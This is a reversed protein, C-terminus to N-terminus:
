EEGLVPLIEEHEPLLEEPPTFLDPELKMSTNLEPNEEEPEPYMEKLDHAWTSDPYESYLMQATRDSSILDEAKRYALAAEYLGRSVWGREEPYRYRIRLFADAANKWFNENKQLLALHFLSEAGIASEECEGLTRFIEEATVSDGMAQSYLARCLDIMLRDKERLTEYGALKDLKTSVTGEGPKRYCYALEIVAAPANAMVPLTLIYAILSEQKETLENVRLTGAIRDALVLAKEPSAFKLLYEKMLLFQETLDSSFSLARFLASEALPAHPYLSFVRKYAYVAAATKGAEQLAEAARFLGDAPLPSDPYNKQLEGLYAMASDFEELMFYSWSIQYLLEERLTPYDIVNLAPLFRDLSAKWDEKYSLAIGSRYLSEGALEHDPFEEALKEFSESAEEFRSLRLYSWGLQYLSDVKREAYAATEVASAYFDAAERYSGKEMAIKGLYFYADGKWYVKGEAETLATFLGAAQEIDELNLSCIASSLLARYALETKDSGPQNLITEFYWKARNFEKRVTYIYGIRYRSENQLAIDDGELNLINQYYLLAGNFDNERYAINGRMYLYLEKKSTEPYETLMRDLHNKLAMDQTHADYYVAMWEGVTERHTNEKYRNFLKEYILITREKEGLEDYLRGSQYLSESALDPDLGKSALQYWELSKEPEDVWTRALNYQIKQVELPDKESKLLKQLAERATEMEGALLYGEALVILSDMAYVSDPYENNLLTMYESASDFDDTLAYLSGLRFIAKERNESEAYLSLFSEFKQISQEKEDLQFYCEGMYYTVDKLLQPVDRYEVTLTTFLSLAKEYEKRNLYIIGQRELAQAIINNDPNLAILSDYAEIAQEDNGTKEYCYGLFQYSKQTFYLEEPFETQKSFEPIAQSYDEGAYYSIGQWYHIRKGYASGPYRSSYDSFHRVVQDFRKLYFYSVGVMYDAQDVRPDSPYRSIFEKFSEVARSFQKDSFASRAEQFLSSGTQSWSPAAIGAALLLILIYKKM